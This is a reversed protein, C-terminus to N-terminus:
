DQIKTSNEEGTLSIQPLKSPLSVISLRGSFPLGSQRDPFSDNFIYIAPM